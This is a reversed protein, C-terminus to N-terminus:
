NSRFTKFSTILETLVGYINYPDKENRKYSLGTCNGKTKESIYMIKSRPAPLDKNTHEPTVLVKQGIKLVM